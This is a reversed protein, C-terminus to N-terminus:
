RAVYRFCGEVHDDIMGTAQMHAYCITSGVFKFGRSKLDQSMQDSESSTAPLSDRKLGNPDRLTQFDTFQWIYRDFSGFEEQVQLFCKANQIAAEIKRLNRVIGKDQLLRKVDRQTFCAVKEVEFGKFASRFNERKRLIMLWSLGAQFSELTLMEFLKKDDHVPEGWEDDHYAVYLPDDGCWWCRELQNRAVSINTM